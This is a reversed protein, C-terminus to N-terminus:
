TLFVKKYQEIVSEESFKKSYMDWNRNKIEMKNLSCLINVLESENTYLIAKDELLEIHCKDYNPNGLGSWTIIPKNSASFEGCAIGFSEGMCRGHIMADCAHIINFKEEETELWPIYLIRDHNYFENTSVFFFLIDKRRDLVHKIAEHVFPLDFSDMGGIRGIIITDDSIGMEKRVNVTPGLNKIIHPVYLTQNYKKALYESVGAYVNGHNEKMGFVCHIGTKCNSPTIGDNEGAKIMHMFDINHKDVLMELEKKIETITNPQTKHNYTFVEFKEKLRPIGENKNLGSTIFIVEHGLHKLGMGYDYSVKGSGRGDFQNSHIAIKM